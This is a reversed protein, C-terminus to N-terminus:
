YKGFLWYRVWRGMDGKSCILFMSSVLETVWNGM